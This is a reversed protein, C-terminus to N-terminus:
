QAALSTVFASKVCVVLPVCDTSADECTMTHPYDICTWDCNIITFCVVIMTSPGSSSIIFSRSPSRVLSWGEYFHQSCVMKQAFIIRNSKSIKHEGQTSKQIAPRPDNFYFLRRVHHVRLFGLFHVFKYEVKQGRISDCKRSDRAGRSVNKHHRRVRYMTKENDIPGTPQLGSTVLTNNHLM